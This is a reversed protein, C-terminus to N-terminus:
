AGLRGFGFDDRMGASARAMLHERVQEEWGKSGPVHARPDITRPPIRRFGYAAASAVHDQEPQAPNHLVSKKPHWGLVKWADRLTRTAPGQLARVSGAMVAGRMDRIASPKAEKEAPAAPFGYRRRLSEVHPEGLDGADIVMDADPYADLRSRLRLAGSEPDLLAADAEVVVVYPVAVNSALVAWAVREPSAVNAAFTYSWSNTPVIHGTESATPLVALSMAEDDYPYVIATKDPTWQGLVERQYQPSATTWENIRLTEEIFEPAHPIGPNDYVTWHHLAHPAPANPKTQEWWYGDPLLGPTGILAIAGDHRMICWWVIERVMYAIWEPPQSGMEDIAVRNLKSGRWTEITAKDDTGMVLVTAGNPLVVTGGHLKFWSEDMGLARGVLLLEPWIARKASEKTLALYVNISGPVTLAGVLLWLAILYTKGAQRGCLLRVLREVLLSAWAREQPASLKAVAAAIAAEM